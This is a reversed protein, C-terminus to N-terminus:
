RGGMGMGMSRPQEEHQTVPKRLYYLFNEEFAKIKSPRWGQDDLHESLVEGYKFLLQFIDYGVQACERMKNEDHSAQAHYADKYLDDSINWLTNAFVKLMLQFRNWHQDLQEEYSKDTLVSVHEHLYNQLANLPAALNIIQTFWGKLTEVPWNLDAPVGKGELTEAIKQHSAAFDSETGVTQLQQAIHSLQRKCEDIISIRFLQRTSLTVIQEDDDGAPVAEQTEAALVAESSHLRLAAPPHFKRREALRKHAQVVSDDATSATQLVSQASADAIVAPASAAAEEARRKKERKWIALM